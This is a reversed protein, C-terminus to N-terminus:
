FMIFKDIQNIQQMKKIWQSAFVNEQQIQCIIFTLTKLMKDYFDKEEAAITMYIWSFLFELFKKWLHYKIKENDFLKYLNEEKEIM